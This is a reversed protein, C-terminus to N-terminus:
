FYYVSLVHLSILLPFPWLVIIHMWDAVRKIRQASAMGLRV